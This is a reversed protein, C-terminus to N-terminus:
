LMEKVLDEFREIRYDYDEVNGFGYDAYVFPVKALRAADHDGQTDGVYVPNKLKNREMVRKINEGKSLGTNGASEFDTFYKQLKHHELFGEIYGCECNSVIFLPYKKSLKELTEELKSYLVGGENKVLIAADSCCQEMIKMRTESELYPFFKEGIQPLQLGMVSQMQEKNILRKIDNRKELVGNWAKLLTDISEWLTGDLDFMIGDINM